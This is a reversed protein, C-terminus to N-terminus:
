DINTPDIRGGSDYRRGFVDDYPRCWYEIGEEDTWDTGKTPDPKDGPSMPECWFWPGGEKLQRKHAEPQSKGQEANTEDTM